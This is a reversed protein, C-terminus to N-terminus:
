QVSAESCKGEFSAKVYEARGGATTKITGFEVDLLIRTKTDGSPYITTISIDFRRAADAGQRANKANIAQELELETPGYMQVETSFSFGKFIGDFRSANEGLFEEEMVDNTSEVDFNGVANWTDQAVGADDVLRILVQDGRLRKQGM